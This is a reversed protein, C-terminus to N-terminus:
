LQNRNWEVWGVGTRGDAASVSVWARPFQSVRGDVAILGVPANGRVDLDATVGGPDLNLTARLPLGNDGFVEKSSVTQLETLNGDRDQAYGVSVPPVGPIRINVGHLHTGDDLHLASWIWDMSWWDRVGWSHDRQGPVADLRYCTDKTDRVTVSGSVTCPIEYRTTLRYRYPTGDTAWALDM